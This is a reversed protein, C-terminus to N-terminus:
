LIAAYFPIEGMTTNSQKKNGMWILTSCCPKSHLQLGCISVPSVTLWSSAHIFCSVLSSYTGQSRWIPCVGQSPCKCPVEFPAQLAIYYFMQGKQPHRASRGSEFPVRKFLIPQLILDAM